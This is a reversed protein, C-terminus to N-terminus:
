NGEPEPQQEMEKKKSKIFKHVEQVWKINQLYRTSSSEILRKQASELWHRHLDDQM